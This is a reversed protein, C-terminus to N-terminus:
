RAVRLTINKDRAMQRMGHLLTKHKTYGCIDVYYTESKGTEVIEEKFRGPNRQIRFIKWFLKGEKYGYIM